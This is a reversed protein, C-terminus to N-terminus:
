DHEANSRAIYLPVDSEAQMLTHVFLASTVVDVCVTVVTYYM